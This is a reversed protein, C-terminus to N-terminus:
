FPRKGEIATLLMLRMDLPIRAASTAGNFWFGTLDEPKARSMWDTALVVSLVAIEPSKDACLEIWDTLTRIDPHSVKFETSHDIWWDIPMGALFNLDSTELDTLGATVYSNVLLKGLLERLRTHKAKDAVRALEPRKSIFTISLRELQNCFADLIKNDQDESGYSFNEVILELLRDPEALTPSLGLESTLCLNVAWEAFESDQLFRRLSHWLLKRGPDPLISLARELVVMQIKSRHPPELLSAASLVQLFAHGRWDEHCVQPMTLAWESVALLRARGDEVGSIQLIGRLFEDLVRIAGISETFRDLHHLMDEAVPHVMTVLPTHIIATIWHVREILQAPPRRSQISQAVDVSHIGHEVLVSYFRALALTQGDQDSCRARMRNALTEFTAKSEPHWQAVTRALEVFLRFKTREDKVHVSLKIANQVLEEFGPSAVKGAACQISEVAVQSKFSDSEIQSACRLTRNLFSPLATSHVRKKIVTFINTLISEGFDLLEQSIPDSQLDLLEFLDEVNRCVVLEDDLTSLQECVTDIVAHILDRERATRMILRTIETTVPTTAPGVLRAAMAVTDLYDRTDEIQQFQGALDNLLLERGAERNLAARAVKVLCLRIASVQRELNWNTIKQRLKNATEVNGISSLALALYWRAAHHSDERAEYLLEKEILGLLERPVEPGALGYFSNLLSAEVSGDSDTTQERYQQATRIFLGKSNDDGTSLMLRAVRLSNESADTDRLDIEDVMDQQLLAAAEENKGGELLVRAMVTRVGPSLGTKEIERIRRYGEDHQGFAILASAWQITLISANKQDTREQLKLILDEFADFLDHNRSKALVRILSIALGVSPTLSRKCWEKEVEDFVLKLLLEAERHDRGNVVEVMAAELVELADNSILHMAKVLKVYLAFSMGAVRLNSSAALAPLVQRFFDLADGSDDRIKVSLEAACLLLEHIPDLSENASVLRDAQRLVNALAQEIPELLMSKLSKGQFRSILPLMSDVGTPKKNDGTGKAFQRIRALTETIWALRDEKSTIWPTVGVFGALTDAESLKGQAKSVIARAEAAAQPWLLPFPAAAKALRVGADAMSHSYLIQAPVDSFRPPIQDLSLRVLTQAEDRAGLAAYAHALSSSCSIRFYQTDVRHLVSKLATLGELGVARDQSTAFADAAAVFTDESKTAFQAIESLIRESSYDSDKRLSDLRTILVKMIEPTAGIRRLHGILYAIAGDQCAALAQLFEAQSGEDVSNCDRDFQDRIWEFMAHEMGPHILGTLRAVRDRADEIMILARKIEASLASQSDSYPLLPTIEGSTLLDSLQTIVARSRGLELASALDQDRLCARFFYSYDSDGETVDRTREIKKQIFGTAGLEKLRKIAKAASGASDLHYPLESLARAPGAFSGDGSPDSREDFMSALQLHAGERSSTESLCRVRVANFLSRHAFDNLEGRRLLYPRLQRLLPFLDETDRLQAVLAQMETESLGYRSAGLLRLVAQTLEYAFDLELREIVQIFIATVSDGALQAVMEGDPRPLGAIRDSLQAFSGFGRLEELAVLLFLPNETAPNELLLIRQQKDLRKASLSPVKRIIALRERHTLPGVELWNPEPLGFGRLKEFVRRERGPEEICSLVIKVHASLKPPLWFLEHARDTKDFQDLGDICIVLKTDPPIRGLFNRFTFTLADTDEPVTARVIKRQGNEEITDKLEFRDRLILCLRRLTHRISTSQASAGVFHGIVYLGTQDSLDVCLKALLSTKGSGSRGTVVVPQTNEGEIHKLLKRNIATRGIYVRLRSEILREHFDKEEALSEDEAPMRALSPVVASRSRLQPHEKCLGRWLQNRMGKGFAELGELRGQTKTVPDLADADWYAPYYNVPFGTSIRSKLITLKKDRDPDTEVYIERKVDEPIGVLAQPDRFYFFARTHPGPNNLVGHLIEIETLSKGTHQKLWGYRRLTKGTIRSLVSGYRAGLIGVFFPCEEIQRLCLGLVRENEAEQRTVGWRLDIDILYFRHRELRERLEPFVVKVLHDREANMDSFTSSIFVRVTKWPAPM